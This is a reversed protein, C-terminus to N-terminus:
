LSVFCVPDKFGEGFGRRDIKLLEIIDGARPEPDEKSALFPEFGGTVPENQLIQVIIDLIDESEGSKVLNKFNM